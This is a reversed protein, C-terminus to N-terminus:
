HVMELIPREIENSVARSMAQPCGNIYSLSFLWCDCTYEITSTASLLIIATFMGPTKLTKLTAGNFPEDLTFAPTPMRWCRLM